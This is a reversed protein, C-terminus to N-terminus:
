RIRECLLKKVFQKCIYNLLTIQDSNPHIEPEMLVCGFTMAFYEVAEAIELFNTAKTTLCYLQTWITLFHIVHLSHIIKYYRKKRAVVQNKAADWSLFLCLFRDGHKLHRKLRDALGSNPNGLKKRASMMNGTRFKLEWIAQNYRCKHSVYTSVNIHASSIAFRTM